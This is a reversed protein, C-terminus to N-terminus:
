SQALMHRERGNRHRARTNCPTHTDCHTLTATHAGVLTDAIEGQTNIALLTPAGLSRRLTRGAAHPTTHTEGTDLTHAQTNRPAHVMGHTSPVKAIQARTNRHTSKYESRTKADEQPRRGLRPEAVSVQGLGARTHAGTLRGTPAVHAWRARPVQARRALLPGRARAPKRSM